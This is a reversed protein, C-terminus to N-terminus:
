RSTQAICLFNRDIHAGQGGHSRRLLAFCRPVTGIVAIYEPVFVYANKEYM